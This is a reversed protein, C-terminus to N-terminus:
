TCEQSTEDGVTFWAGNINAFYYRVSVFHSSIEGIRSSEIITFDAIGDSNLDVSHVVVNRPKREQKNKPNTDVYAKKRSVIQVMKQPLVSTSYFSLLPWEKQRSYGSIASGEPVPAYGSTCEADSRDSLTQSPISKASVLGNRGVSHFILPKPFTVKITGIDWYSAVGETNSTTFWRPKGGYQVTSKTDSMAVLSDVNAEYFTVLDSQRSFLSAKILPLYNASSWASLVLIDTGQSLKWYSVDPFPKLTSMAIRPLEQEITPMFGNALKAKMADFEPVSFRIPIRTQEELAKQEPSLASSNLQYGVTTLRGVSPAIWFRRAPLELMREKEIEAVMSLTLPVKGILDCAVFGIQNSESAARCWDGTKSLVAIKTNTTWNGIIKSTKSPESRVNVWSGYVWRSGNAVLNKTEVNPQAAVGVVSVIPLICVCHKLFSMKM